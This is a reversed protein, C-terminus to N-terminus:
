FSFFGFFYRSLWNKGQEEEKEEEVNFDFDFDLVPISFDLDAEILDAENLDQENFELDERSFVNNYPNINEKEAEREAEAELAIKREEEVLQSLRKLTINSVFQNYRKFQHMTWEPLTDQHFLELYSAKALEYYAPVPFRVPFSKNRTKVKWLTNEELWDPYKEVICGGSGIQSNIDNYIVDIQNLYSKMIEGTPTPFSSSVVVEAMKQNINTKIVTLLRIINLNM